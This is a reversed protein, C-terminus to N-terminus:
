VSGAGKLLDDLRAVAEEQIGPLIHSYTELTIGIGSHGLRESVVKPNVGQQMLLSAHSHRLGHFSLYEIDATEVISLWAKRLNSPDIPAGTVTAFVLDFDQYSPGLQLREQVQGLRAQRLTQVTEPSLPLSRRGKATKPPRFVFGQRPLWQVTQQVRLVGADLDLDSWRLGLLEGQRLGTMLATRILPGYSTNDAATLLQRAEQPSLAKMEVRELRPPQVADCPNQVIVQLKVAQRLAARLARHHHLVSNPSLAGKGDLRGQRLARAYYTQLHQPRLKSLPISGLAPTLHRRVIDTYSRVTKPALNPEVYDALWRELYDGLTLKGPLVDVGSDRQSLLQVLLAEADRKTGKVTRWLQRRQGSVADRGLEVVVTWSDKSRKRLHGQM